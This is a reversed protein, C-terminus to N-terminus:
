YTNNKKSLKSKSIFLNQMEPLYVIGKEIM